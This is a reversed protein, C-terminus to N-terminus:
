FPHEASARIDTATAINLLWPASVTAKVTFLTTFCFGAM